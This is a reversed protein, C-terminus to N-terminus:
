RRGCLQAFGITTQATQTSIAQMVTIRTASHRNARNNRPSIDLSYQDLRPQLLAGRSNHPPRNTPHEAQDPSPRRRQTGM